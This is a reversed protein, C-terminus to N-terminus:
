RGNIRALLSMAEESAPDVALAREAESRAAVLDNSQRYAEGLVAHAAGSEESWLSIKLADIADHLRGNRLHIRGLLLHAEALYPSLYLARDLAVVAERDNEQQYLRRGRELEFRALDEQDRQGTAALRSQIQQARPLEVEPKIRELGKKVGDVGNIVPKRRDVAEYEASLRRALERERAAEPQNGAAALATGLVFHADADARNRRVAERLWFIAAPADRGMWYAYGLNFLYDADGPDAEAAKNFYYAATGSEPTVLRRMQVVGLNNLAAATPKADALTKFSQFADVLKGLDLESLGALFRARRAYPSGAAVATVAALAREHDGQEAYVDWLALRARDFGPQLKLATNLYSTATEPTEALLGKIFNEFVAVPPRQRQLDDSPMTSTPAIRRAIREFTAFLEPLPGRETVNAAVRGTDLAISRAHAVLDDNELHLTGVVVQAAGVLQGIRIITADTLAAAPPVQLREFAQKREERTIASGGLANLDDTLVVAAAEGLWFIRADRSVNDFPMVLVGTQAQAVAGFSLM